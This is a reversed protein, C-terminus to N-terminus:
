ETEIEVTVPRNDWVREVENDAVEVYRCVRVKLKDSVWVGVAVRLRTCVPLLGVPDPLLVGVGVKEKGGLPENEGDSVLDTLQIGVQVEVCVCDGDTVDLDKVPVCVPSVPDGLVEAVLLWLQESLWEQDRVSAGVVVGLVVQPELDFDPVPLMEPLLVGVGLMLIVRLRLLLGVGVRVGVGVALKLEVPVAPLQVREVLWDRDAV